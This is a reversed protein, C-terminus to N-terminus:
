DWHIAEDTSLGGERIHYNWQSVFRSDAVGGNHVTLGFWVTLKVQCQSINM